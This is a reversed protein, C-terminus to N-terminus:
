KRLRAIYAAIDQAENRTLSMDPMIPHPNLLFFALKEVSFDLRQAVSAFSPVSDGGKSQASSVIHCSACWRQALRLGNDADAALAFQSTFALVVLTVCYTTRKM